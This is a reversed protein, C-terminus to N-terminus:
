VTNYWVYLPNPIITANTVIRRKCISHVIFTYYQEYYLQTWAINTMIFLLPTDINLTKTLSFGGVWM